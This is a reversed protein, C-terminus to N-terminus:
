TNGYNNKLEVTFTIDSTHGNNILDIESVYVNRDNYFTAMNPSSHIAKVFAIIIQHLYHLTTSTIDLVCKQSYTGNVTEETIYECEWLYREIDNFIQEHIDIYLIHKMTKPNFNLQQNYSDKSVENLLQAVEVTLVNFLDEGIVRASRNIHVKETSEKLIVDIQSILNERLEYLDVILMVKMM